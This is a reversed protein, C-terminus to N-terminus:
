GDGDLFAFGHFLRDDGADGMVPGLALDGDVADRVDGALGRLDEVHDGRGVHVDVHDDLVDGPDLGAARVDGEGQGDGLALLGGLRQARGLGLDAELVDQQVR